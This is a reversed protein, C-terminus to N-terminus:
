DALPAASIRQNAGDRVLSNGLVSRMTSARAEWTENLSARWRMEEYGDTFRDDRLKALENAMQETSDVLKLLPQKHLLEEFGRTAVMPRCAALHEYFRTSSGSYTPERKKYPLIAVDLARAYDRLAGYPKPGVFRVRGGRKVVYNRAMDQRSDPVPMETPGVFVWSLWPTREVTELILEWDMNAALNGVVGAVPRRMDSIDPPLKAPVDTPGSLLNAARTAMPSIHIIDESCEADAVLYQAIRCSDPFVLDAVECMRQDLAIIRRLNEGWAVFLDTVYYIVPGPWREAVAAYHPSCCILPSAAADESRRTLRRAIRNGERALFTVPFRAFGRQLPFLRIRLYPDDLTEEHEDNRLMGINRIRPLWGLTPAQKALASAFEKIWIARVDLVQWIM